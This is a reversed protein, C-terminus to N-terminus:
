AFLGHVFWQQSHLECFIWCLRGDGSRAVYYDRETMKERWWINGIREPGRLLHLPTEWLLQEDRRRIPAPQPLLWLPRPAEPPPANATAAVNNLLRQTVDPWHAACTQLRQLAQPGLRASLRDLLDSEAGADTHTDAFLNLTGPAAASFSDSHLFLTYVADTLPLVHVNASLM